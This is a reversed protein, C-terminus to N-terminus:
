CRRDDRRRRRDGHRGEDRRRPRRDRDRSRERSRERGKRCQYEGHGERLCRRCIHRFRCTSGSACTGTQFRDCYNDMPADWARGPTRDATCKLGPTDTRPTKKDIKLADRWDQSSEKKAAETGSVFRGNVLVKNAQRLRDATFLFSNSSCM